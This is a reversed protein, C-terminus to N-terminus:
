HPQSVECEVGWAGPRLRLQLSLRSLCLARRRLAAAAAEAM